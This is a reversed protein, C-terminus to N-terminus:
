KTEPKKAVSENKVEVKVEPKKTVQATHTKRTAKEVAERVSKSFGKAAERPDPKSMCFDFYKKELLRQKPNMM